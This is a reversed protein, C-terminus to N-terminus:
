AKNWGMKKRFWALTEFGSQVRVGIRADNSFSEWNKVLQLKKECDEFKSKRYALVDKVDSPVDCCELWSLVAEEYVATPYVYDETM